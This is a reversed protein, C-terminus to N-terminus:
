YRGENTRLKEDFENLIDIVTNRKIDIERRLNEKGPENRGKVKSFSHLYSLRM